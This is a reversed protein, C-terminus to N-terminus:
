SMFLLKRGDQRIEARMTSSRSFQAVKPNPPADIQTIRASGLVQNRQVLGLQQDAYFDVM